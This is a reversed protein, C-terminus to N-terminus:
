RGGSLLSGMDLEIIVKDTLMEPVDEVGLPRPRISSASGLPAFRRRTREVQTYLMHATRIYVCSTHTHTHQNMHINSSHFRGGHGM